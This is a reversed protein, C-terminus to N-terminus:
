KFEGKGPEFGEAPFAGIHSGDVNRNVLPSGTRLRYDSMPDVFLPDVDLNTQSLRPVAYNRGNNRFSNNYEIISQGWGLVGEANLAIINSYLSVASGPDAILGWGDNHRVVTNREVKGKVESLSIGSEGNGAVLTGTVSLGQTNAVAIGSGANDEVRCNEIGVGNSDKIFIGDHNGRVVCERFKVKTGGKVVVGTYESGASVTVKEVTVDKADIILQGTRVKENNVGVIKIGSTKIYADGYSGPRLLIVDGEKSSSLAEAITKYDGGGEPSVTITGPRNSFKAPQALPEKIKLRPLESAHYRLSYFADQLAPKMFYHGKIVPLIMWALIFESEDNIQYNGKVSNLTFKNDDLLMMPPIYM